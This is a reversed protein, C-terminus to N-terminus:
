TPREDILEALKGTKPSIKFAEMRLFEVRLSGILGQEVHQRFMPRVEHLSDEIVRKTAVPDKPLYGIRLTLTDKKDERTIVAQFAGIDSGIADWIIERLHVIDITVPGLRVGTKDRGLVRFLGADYDVWEARDGSPYRIVPQLTRCLNTVLVTGPVGSKSTPTSGDPAIELIIYPKSVTHLRTDESNISYGLAGGDISGYVLSRFQAAPFAKGVRGRQDDYFSEGAFMLIRVDPMSENLSILYEALKVLTTVTAFVINSSTERMYQITAESTCSGGIPVHVIPITLDMLSLVHMLFSGYMEGAYFLNAVRDHPRIGAAMIGAGLQQSAARLEDKSYFTVKPHNTTGNTQPQTIVKSNLSTNAAWYSTHDVIPYDQLRAAGKAPVDKWLKQYYPSHKRVFTILDQLEPPIDSPGGPRM